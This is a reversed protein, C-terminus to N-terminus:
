CRTSRSRRSAMHVSFAHEPNGGVTCRTTRRVTSKTFFSENSKNSKGHRIARKGISDNPLSLLFYTVNVRLPNMVSLGEPEIIM